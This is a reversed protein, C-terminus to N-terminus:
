LTNCCNSLNFVNNSTLYILHYSILMMEIGKKEEKEAKSGEGRM